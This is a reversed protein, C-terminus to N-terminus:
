GRDRPPGESLERRLQRRERALHLGYGLLAGLAVAYAAILYGYRELIEAM